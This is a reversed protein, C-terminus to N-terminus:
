AELEALIRAKLAALARGRHSLRNKVEPSLKGFTEGAEESFFIPDYGFGGEGEIVDHIRGEHVGRASLVRGDPWALAAACVFRATRQPRGVSSLLELIRANKVPYPTSEGMWRASQVGPAGGLADVELGSDDALAPMEAKRAYYLAKEVANEAFTPATEEPAPIGGLADLGVLSLRNDRLIDRIEQLKHPNSTAVLITL